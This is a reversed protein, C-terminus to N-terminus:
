MWLTYAECKMVVKPHLRELMHLSIYISFSWGDTEAVQEPGPQKRAAPEALQDM